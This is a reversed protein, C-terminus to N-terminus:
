VMMRMFLSHIRARGMIFMLRLLLLLSESTHRSYGVQVYSYRRIECICAPRRASLGGCNQKEKYLQDNGDRYWEGDPFYVNCNSINGAAPPLWSKEALLYENRSNMKM